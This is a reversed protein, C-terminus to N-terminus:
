DPQREQGLLPTRRLLWVTALGGALAGSWLLLLRPAGQLLMSAALWVVLLLAVGPYLGRRGVSLGLRAYLALHVLKEASFAFLCARAAGAAGHAPVLIFCLVALLCLAGLATLVCAREQRAAYLPMVGPGAVRVLHALALTGLLASSPAFSAGFLRLVQGGGEVCLAYAAPALTLLLMNLRQVTGEFRPRDAAWHHALSPMFVGSLVLYPLTQLALQRGAASFLAVAEPGALPQLMLTPAEALALGTVAAAYFWRSAAVASLGGAEQGTPAGRLEGLRCLGRLTALAAAVGGLVAQFLGFSGRALVAVAAAPALAGLSPLSRELGEMLFQGHARRVAALLESVGQAGAFLATGLVAADATPELARVIGWALLGAVPVGVLRIILARRELAALRFRSAPIERELYGTFGFDAVMALLGGTAMALAFVGAQHLEFLRAVCLLAGVRALFTAARAAFSLMYATSASQNSVRAMPRLM